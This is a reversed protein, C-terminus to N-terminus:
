KCQAAMVPKGRFHELCWPKLTDTFDTCPIKDAPQGTRDKAMGEKCQECCKAHMDAESQKAEEQGKAQGAADDGSPAIDAGKDNLADPVEAQKPPPGCAAALALALAVLPLVYRM